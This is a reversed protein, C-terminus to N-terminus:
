DENQLGDRNYLTPYHRRTFMLARKIAHVVARPTITAGTFQDFQGGDKQVTWEESHPDNLSKGAFQHIWNSKRHDIDDGLGPTELHHTVRVGAITLDAHVAIMLEIRGNYGDETDTVLVIAKTAGKDIVPYAIASGHQEDAIHMPNAFPLTDRNIGPLLQELLQQQQQRQNAVIRESTMVRIAVLLSSVLLAITTLTLAHPSIKVM